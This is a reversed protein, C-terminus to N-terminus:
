RRLSDLIGFGQGKNLYYVFLNNTITRITITDAYARQKGNYIPYIIITSNDQLLKYISTDCYLLQPPPLNIYTVNKMICNILYGDNRFIQFSDKVKISSSGSNPAFFRSSISTWSNQILTLTDANSLSDKKCSAFLFPGCIILTFYKRM